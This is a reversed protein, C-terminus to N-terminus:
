IPDVGWAAAWDRDLQRFWERLVEIWCTTWWNPGRVSWDSCDPEDPVCTTGLEVLEGNCDVLPIFDSVSASVEDDIALEISDMSWGLPLGYLRDFVVNIAFSESDPDLQDLMERITQRQYLDIPSVVAGDVVRVRTSQSIEPPCFCFQRYTFEYDDIGLANWKNLQTQWVSQGPVPGNLDSVSLWDSRQQSTIVGADELEDLQRNITQVNDPQEPELEYYRIRRDVVIREEVREGPQLDGLEYEAPFPAGSLGTNLFLVIDRQIESTLNEVAACATLRNWMLVANDPVPEVGPDDCEVVGPYVVVEVLLCPESVPQLRSGCAQLPTFSKVVQGFEEDAINVNYDAYWRTPYGYLLDFDARLDIPEADRAAEFRDFITDLTTGAVSGGGNISFAQVVQGDEVRVNWPPAVEEPWFCFCTDRYVFEYDEIGLTEWKSRQVNVDVDIVADPGQGALSFVDSSAFYRLLATNTIVRRTLLEDLEGRLDDATLLTDRMDALFTESSQDVFHRYIVSEGPALDGLNVSPLLYDDDSLVVDNAVSGGVNTITFCVTTRGNGSFQLGSPLPQLDNDCPVDGEYALVELEIIAETCADESPVYLGNNCDRLPTFESVIQGFGDDAVNAYRDVFWRTPYGYLLDFSGDFQVPDNSLETDIDAFIADFTTGAVAGGGSISEASVVQGDIVRVKWPPAIEDPWFCFCTDRYVFEYDDIGLTVWKQIQLAFDVEILADPGQGALQYLDTFNFYENLANPALVGKDALEELELELDDSDLFRDRLDALFRRSSQDIFHRYDISAGVPLDGLIVDVLGYDTDSLIVNTALADGVNTVVFCVTTRGSDGTWGDPLPNLDNACDVDGEYAFREIILEPEGPDPCTDTSPVYEAGCDRLPQFSLVSQGFEEDAILRSRDSFWQTPYGYLIEFSGTLRVPNVARSEDISDFMTDLTIGQVAGGGRVSAAEVVEGDIVRVRWPPAADDPWFCFCNNRYVFEYDDIGLTEWKQRQLALDAEGAGQYLDTIGLYQQYASAEIVGVDVLAELERELDDSDWPVDRIDREFSEVSHDVFHRYTVSEGPALDGLGVDDIGYNSDSFRVDEAVASGINTITFCLTTQGSGGIFPPLPRAEPEGPCAVDGDFEAAMIQLEPVGEPLSTVFRELVVTQGREVNYFWEGDGDLLESAVFVEPAVTDGINTSYVCVTVPLAAAAEDPTLTGGLPADCTTDGAFIREESVVEAPVFDPLDEQASASPPAAVFTAAALIAVVTAVM